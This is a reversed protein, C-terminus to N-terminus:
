EKNVIVASNEVFIEYGTRINHDRGLVYIRRSWKKILGEFFHKDWSSFAFINYGEKIIRKQYYDLKEKYQLDYILLIENGMDGIYYNDENLVCRTLPIHKRNGYYKKESELKKGYMEFYIDGELDLFLSTNESYIKTNLCNLVVYDNESLIFDDNPLGQREQKILNQKEIYDKGAIALIGIINIALIQFGVKLYKNM